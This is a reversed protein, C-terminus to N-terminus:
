ISLICVLLAPSASDTIHALLLLCAGVWGVMWWACRIRQGRHEGARLTAVSPEAMLQIESQTKMEKSRQGDVGWEERWGERGAQRGGESPKDLKNKWEVRGNRVEM